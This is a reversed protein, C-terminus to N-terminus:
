EDPDGYKYRRFLKIARGVKWKLRDLEANILVLKGRLDQHFSSDQWSDVIATHIGIDDQLRSHIDALSELYNKM